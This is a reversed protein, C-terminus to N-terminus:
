LIPDPIGISAFGEARKICPLCHGCPIDTGEFCTLSHAMADMCGPLTQAYRLCAERSHHTPTDFIIPFDPVATLLVGRVLQEFQETCDPFGGRLGTSLIRANLKYAHAAAHTLMILNRYPIFSNDLDGFEKTETINSYKTVPAGGLLSGEFRPLHLKQVIFKGMTETYREDARVHDIIDQAHSAESAHRQGYLFTLAHVRVGERKAIVLRHYLAITSDMGGSFLVLSDNTIARM